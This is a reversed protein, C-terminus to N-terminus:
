HKKQGRRKLPRPERTAFERPLVGADAAKCIVRARRAQVLVAALCEMQFRMWEAVDWEWSAQHALEKYLGRLHALLVSCEADYAPLRRDRLQDPSRHLQDAYVSRYRLAALVVSKQKAVLRKLM